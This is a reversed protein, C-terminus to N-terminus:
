FVLLIAKFFTQLYFILRQKIWYKGEVKGANM